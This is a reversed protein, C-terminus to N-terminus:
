RWGDEFEYEVSARGRLEAGPAAEEEEAPARGEARRSTLLERRRRRPADDLVFLLCVGLSIALSVSLLVLGESKM